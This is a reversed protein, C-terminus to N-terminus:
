EETLVEKEYDDRCRESCFVYFGHEAMYAADIDRYIPAACYDCQTDDGRWPCM